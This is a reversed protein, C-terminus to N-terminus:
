GNGFGKHLSAVISARTEYDCFGSSIGNIQTNFLEERTMGVELLLYIERNIDTSFTSSDDDGITIKVGARLLDLIPHEYISSVAGTLLNSTPCIELTVNKEILMDVCDPDSHAAIGHGIRSAGLLQVATWVNESGAAEGAHM